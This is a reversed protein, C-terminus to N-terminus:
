AKDGFIFDESLAREERTVEGLRRRIKRLSQKLARVEAADLAGFLSDSWRVFSERAKRFRQRGARTLTLYQMRNDAASVSREVLGQETLRALSRSVAVKNLTTVRTIDKSAIPTFSSIVSLIRWESLTLGCDQQLLLEQRISILESTFSLHYLLQHTINWDDRDMGAPTM